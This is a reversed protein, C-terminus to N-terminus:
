ENHESFLRRGACKFPLFLKTPNAGLCVDPAYIRRLGLEITLDVVLVHNRTKRGRDGGIADVESEFSPM